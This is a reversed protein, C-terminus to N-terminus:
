LGDTWNFKKGVFVNGSLEAEWGTNTLTGVNKMITPYVMPPMSAPVEFLMDDVRRHYYDFKGYIRNGFLSFDLGVDFEKKEEWKLDPNINRTSGYGPQWIGNTPWLDNSKYTRVTYGNGVDNNGTVGYGVRLKLDNIFAVNQM